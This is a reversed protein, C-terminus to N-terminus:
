VRAQLQSFIYHHSVKFLHGLDAEHEIKSHQPQDVSPAVTNIHINEQQNSKNEALSQAPKGSCLRVNQQFIFKIFKHQNALVHRCLQQPYYFFVNKKMDKM